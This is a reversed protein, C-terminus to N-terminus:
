RLKVDFMKIFEVSFEYLKQADMEIAAKEYMIRYKDTVDAFLFYETKRIKELIPKIRDISSHYPELRVSEPYDMYSEILHQNQTHTNMTFHLSLCNNIFIYWIFSDNIRYM